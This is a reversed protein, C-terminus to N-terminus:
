DGAQGQDFGFRGCRTMMWCLTIWKNGEGLIMLRCFRQRCVLIRPMKFLGRLRRLFFTKTLFDWFGAKFERVLTLYNNFLWGQLFFILSSNNWQMAYSYKLSIFIIQKSTVSSSLKFSVLKLECYRLSESGRQYLSVRSFKSCVQFYPCFKKFIDGTEGTNWVLSTLIVSYLYGFSFVTFM